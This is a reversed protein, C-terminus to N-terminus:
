EKSAQTVPQEQQQMMSADFGTQGLADISYGDKLTIIAKKITKGKIEQRRNNLRKKGKRIIIRIKEVKVNFLKELAQRVLSKNAQIHVQVILQKLKSNLQYAKETIIPGKVIDYITLDM